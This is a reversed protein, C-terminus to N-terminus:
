EARWIVPAGTAAIEDDTLTISVIGMSYPAVEYPQYDILIGEDTIKVASSVYATEPTIGFLDDGYGENLKESVLQKVAAAWADEMLYQFDYRQGSSVDYCCYAVTGLGHAGGTYTYCYTTYCMVSGDRVFESDQSISLQYEFTHSGGEDYAAFGDVFGDVVAQAAANIDAPAEDGFVSEYNQQEITAWAQNSDADVIRCYSLEVSYPTAVSDRAVFDITEVEPAAVGKNARRCGAAMVAAAVAALLVM